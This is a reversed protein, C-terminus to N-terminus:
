ENGYYRKYEELDKKTQPDLPARTPYLFVTGDKTAIVKALQEGERCDQGERIEFEMYGHDPHVAPICIYSSRFPNAKVPVAGLGLFLLILIRIWTKMKM